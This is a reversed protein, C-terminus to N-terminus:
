PPSVRSISHHQGRCGRSMYEVAQWEPRAKKIMRVHRRCFGSCAEKNLRGEPLPKLVVDGAEDVRLVVGRGAHLEVSRLDGLLFFSEQLDYTLSDTGGHMCQLTSFCNCGASRASRSRGLSVSFVFVFAIELATSCVEIDGQRVDYSIAIYYGYGERIPSPTREFEDM